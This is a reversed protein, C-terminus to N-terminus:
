GEFEIEQGFRHGDIRVREFATVINMEVDRSFIGDLNIDDLSLYM